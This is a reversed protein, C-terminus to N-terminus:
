EWAKGIFWTIEQARLSHHIVILGDTVFDINDSEDYWILLKKRSTQACRRNVNHLILLLFNRLITHYKDNM